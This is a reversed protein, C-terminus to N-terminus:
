TGARRARAPHSKSTAALPPSPLLDVAVVLSNRAWSSLRQGPEWGQYKAALLRRAVADEEPAEVLRATGPYTKRGLKVKVREDVRLNRVWHASDGGGSLLYLSDDVLGFWIEVTRESGTKRGITTLYCFDLDARSV